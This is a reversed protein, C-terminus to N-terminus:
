DERICLVCGGGSGDNVRSEGAGLGSICIFGGGNAGRIDYTLSVSEVWKNRLLRVFM